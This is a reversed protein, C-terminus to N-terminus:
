CRHTASPVASSVGRSDRTGEKEEHSAMETEKLPYGEDPLVILWFKRGSSLGAALVRLQAVAQRVAVLLFQVDHVKLREM